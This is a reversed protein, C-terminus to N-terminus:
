KNELTKLTISCENDLFQKVNIFDKKKVETEFLTMVQMVEVM